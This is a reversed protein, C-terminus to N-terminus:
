RTPAEWQSDYFFQFPKDQTVPEGFALNQDKVEVPILKTASIGLRHEHEIALVKQSNEKSVQGAYVIAGANIQGRRAIAKMAARFMMIRAEPPAGEGTADLKLEKITVGDKMLMWGSPMSTKSGDIRKAYESTANEALYVLQKNAVVLYSAMEKKDIVGDSLVSNEPIRVEISQDRGEEAQSLGALLFSLVFFFVILARSSQLM